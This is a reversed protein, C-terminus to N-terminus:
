HLELSFRRLDSLSIIRSIIKALFFWKRYVGVFRVWHWWNTFRYNNQEFSCRILQNKVIVSGIVSLRNKCVDMFIWEIVIEQWMKTWWFFIVFLFLQWFTPFAFFFSFFFVKQCLKSGNLLDNARMWLEHFYFNWENVHRIVQRSM